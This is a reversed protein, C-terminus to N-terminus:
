RTESDTAVTVRPSLRGTIKDLSQHLHKAEDGYKEGDSQVRCQKQREHAKAASRCEFGAVTVVHDDDLLTDRQFAEGLETFGLLHDLRDVNRGHLRDLRRLGTSSILGSSVSTTM